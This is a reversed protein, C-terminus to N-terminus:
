NTQVAMLAIRRDDVQEGPDEGIVMVISRCLLKNGALYEGFETRSLVPDLIGAGGRHRENHRIDMASFLVAGPRKRAVLSPRWDSKAFSVSQRRHPSRAHKPDSHRRHDPPHQSPLHPVGLVM